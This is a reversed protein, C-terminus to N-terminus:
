RSLRNIGEPDGSVIMDLEEKLNVDGQGKNVVEFGTIGTDPFNDGNQSGDPHQTALDQRQNARIELSQGTNNFATFASFPRYKRLAGDKPQTSFTIVESEGPSLSTKTFDVATQTDPRKKRQEEKEDLYSKTKEGVVTGVIQGIVM